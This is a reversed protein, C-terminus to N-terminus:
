HEQDHKMKHVMQEVSPKELENRWLEMLREEKKKDAHDRLHATTEKSNYNELANRLYNLRKLMMMESNNQQNMIAQSKGGTNSILSDNMSNGQKNLLAM